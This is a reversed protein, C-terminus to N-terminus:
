AAFENTAKGKKGMEPVSKSRRWRAASARSLLTTAIFLNRRQGSKIRAQMTTAQLREAGASSDV